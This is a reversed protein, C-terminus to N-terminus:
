HAAPLPPPNDTISRLYAIMDARKQADKEGPYSMKTNPVFAKPNTIFANLAEYSWEGGKAKLPDSYGAYDTSGLKRGVVGPLNPGSPKAAGGKELNHCIACAKVYNEGKKPDAKALLEPLPVTPAAAAPGAHSDAAASPLDYGPKNMHPRAFLTSSIVGLGMLFLLSGLVAGAVKNFEFSDM